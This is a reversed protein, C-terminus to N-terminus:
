NINFLPAKVFGFVFEHDQYGLERRAAARDSSGSTQVGNFIVAVKRKDIGICELAHKKEFDSGVIVADCFLSLIKEIAVYFCSARPAMTIFAHPTYVIATKPFLLGSIRTLAGAKASHGHIVHFPGARRLCRYLHWADMLDHAGVERRMPTTVLRLGPMSSLAKVFSPDARNPAYIVTLADGAALGERALDIVVQGSGGGATEIIHCIRM